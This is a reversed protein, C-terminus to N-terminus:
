FREDRVAMWLQKAYELLLPAAKFAADAQYDGGESSDGLQLRSTGRLAYKQTGEYGILKLTSPSVDSRCSVRYSVWFEPVGDADADSVRAPAGTFAATIDFPCADVRDQIVWRQQHGDATDAFLTAYLRASHEDGETVSFSGTRSLILTYPQASSNLRWAATMVGDVVYEQDLGDIPLATLTPEAGLAALPLLLGWFGM